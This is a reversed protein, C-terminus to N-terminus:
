SHVSWGQDRAVTLPAPRAATAPTEQTDIAFFDKELKGPKFALVRHISLKVDPNLVCIHFAIRKTVPQPTKGAAVYHALRFPNSLTAFAAGLARLLGQLTAGNANHVVHFWLAAPQEAILTAAAKKLSEDSESKGSRGGAKFAVTLTPVETDRRADAAGYPEVVRQVGADPHAEGDTQPEAIRRYLALDNLARQSKTGAGRFAFRYSLKTPAEAALAWEQSAPDRLLAAVFALRAEHEGIRREKGKVPFMVSPWEHASAAPDDTPRDAALAFAHSRWLIEDTKRCVAELWAQDVPERGGGATPTM